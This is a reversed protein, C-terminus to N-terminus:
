SARRRGDYTKTTAGADPDTATLQNGLLDYTWSWSNAAADTISALKQATTYTYSTQDYESAPSAPHGNVPANLHAEKM